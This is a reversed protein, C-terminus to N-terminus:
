KRTFEFILPEMNLLKDRWNLIEQIEVADMLDEYQSFSYPQGYNILENSLDRCAGVPEQFEELRKRKSKQLYQVLYEENIESLTELFINNIDEFHTSPTSCGFGATILGKSYSFGPSLGYALGRKKRINIWLPSLLDYGMASTLIKLPFTKEWPINDTFLYSLSLGDNKYRTDKFKHYGSKKRIPPYEIIPNEVGSRMKAFVKELIELVNPIDSFSGGCVINANGTHYYRDFFKILDEQAIRQVARPYGAPHHLYPNNKGYLAKRIHQNKLKAGVIRNDRIEQLVVGREIDIDASDFNPENVISYLMQAAQLFNSQDIEAFYTTCDPGTLADVRGGKQMISEVSENPPFNKADKRFLIHELFHALGEYGYPDNASGVGKFFISLYGTYNISIATKQIWVNIDNSLKHQTFQATDWLRRIKDSEIKM